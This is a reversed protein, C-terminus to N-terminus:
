RGVGVETFMTGSPENKRRFTALARRVEELTPEAEEMLDIKALYEHDLFAAAPDAPVDSITVSVRQHEDLPLPELPRLVGKEYIAEVHKIM